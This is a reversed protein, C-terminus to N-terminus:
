EESRLSGIERLIRKVKYAVDRPEKGFVVIMPEKGIDGRHYVIDPISGYSRVAYDIGWRISSGEKVKIDKPEVNRDYSAISMGLRSCASIIDDSHMINMAARISKDYRMATLLADAVHRSVGYVIRGARFARDGAKVIRGEVGAVDERSTADERAYVFNSQSEPILLGLPEMCTLLDITKSLEIVIPDDLDEKLIPILMGKGM